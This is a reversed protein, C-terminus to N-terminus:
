FEDGCVKFFIVFFRIPQNPIQKMIVTVCQCSESMNGIFPDLKSNSISDTNSSGGIEFFIPQKPNLNFPIYVNM